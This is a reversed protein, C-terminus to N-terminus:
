LIDVTQCLYGLEPAKAQTENSQSQPQSLQLHVAPHIDYGNSITHLPRHLSLRSENVEREEYVQSGFNRYIFMFYYYYFPINVHLPIDRKEKTNKRLM